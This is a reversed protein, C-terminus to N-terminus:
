LEDGILKDFIPNLEKWLRFHTSQKAYCYDDDNLNSENISRIQKQYERKLALLQILLENM